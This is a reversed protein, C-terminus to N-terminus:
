TSSRPAGPRISRRPRPGPSSRSTIRSSGRTGSRGRRAGEIVRESLPSEGDLRRRLRYDKVGPRRLPPLSLTNEVMEQVVVHPRGHYVSDTGLDYCPLLLQECCDLGLYPRMAEVFSDACYLVRPRAPDGGAEYYVPHDDMYPSSEAWPMPRAAPRVGHQVPQPYEERRDPVTLGVQRALDCVYLGEAPLSFKPEPLEDRPFEPCAEALARRLPKYAAWAGRMNWHTDQRIYVQHRAKEALLEPRPDVFPVGEARLLDGLPGILPDDALYRHEPALMEPYVTHKNPAVFVVYPVGQDALWARRDLLADRWAALHAPVGSRRAAPRYYPNVDGLNLFLWGDRGLAVRRAPSVGLLDRKWAMHGEILAARGGLRDAAWEEVKAPYAQRAERGRPREPFKAPARFEFPSVSPGVWLGYAPAAALAMVFLGATLRDRRPRPKAPAAQVHGKV